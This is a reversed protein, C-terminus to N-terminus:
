ALEYSTSETCATESIIDRVKAPASFEVARVGERPQELRTQMRSADVVDITGVAIRVENDAM